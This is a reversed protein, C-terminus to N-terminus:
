SITSTNCPSYTSFSIRWLGPVNIMRAGPVVWSIRESEPHVIKAIRSTGTLGNVYYWGARLIMCQGLRPLRHVHRAGTRFSWFSNAKARTPILLQNEARLAQNETRLAEISVTDTSDDPWASM